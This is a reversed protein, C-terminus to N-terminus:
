NKSKRSAQSQSVTQSVVTTKTAQVSYGAAGKGEIKGTGWSEVPKKSKREEDSSSASSYSSRSGRSKKTSKSRSVDMSLNLRDEENELLRRFVAIEM